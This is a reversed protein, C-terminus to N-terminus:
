FFSSQRPKTLFVPLSAPSNSTTLLLNTIISFRLVLDVYVCGVLLDNLNTICHWKFGRAAQETLELEVGNLSECHTNVTADDGAQVAHHRCLM